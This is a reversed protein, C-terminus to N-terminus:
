GIKTIKKLDLLKLARRDREQSEGIVKSLSSSLYLCSLSVILYKLFISYILYDIFIVLTKIFFYYYM